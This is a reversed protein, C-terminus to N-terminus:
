EYVDGLELKVAHLLDTYQQPNEFQIPEWNRKVWALLEHGNSFSRGSTDFTRIAFIGNEPEVTVLCPIESEKSQLNMEM